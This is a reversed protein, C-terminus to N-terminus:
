AHGCQSAEHRRPPLPPLQGHGSGQSLASTRGQRPEADPRSPQAPSEAQGAERHPHRRTSRRGSGFADEGCARISARENFEREKKEMAAEVAKRKMESANLADQLVKNKEKGKKLDSRLQRIYDFMSVIGDKWYGLTRSVLGNTGWLVNSHRSGEGDDGTGFSASFAAKNTTLCFMRALKNLGFMSPRPMEALVRTINEKPGPQQLMSSVVNDATAFTMSGVCCSCPTLPGNLRFACSDLHRTRISYYSFPPEEKPGTVYQYFEDIRKGDQEANSTEVDPRIESAM